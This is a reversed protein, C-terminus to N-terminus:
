CFKFKYLQIHDSKQFPGTCILYIGRGFMEKTVHTPKSLQPLFDAARIIPGAVLQPFFSVFFAYDLIQNVPKLKNRYIDITYSLSQFTFFSVGVPLFYILPNTVLGRPLVLFKMYFIPTNSTARVRGPQRGPEVGVIYKTEVAFQTKYILGALTYDILRPVSDTVFLLTGSSKYYFYL